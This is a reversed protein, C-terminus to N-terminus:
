ACSRQAKSNAEEKDVAEHEAGPKDNSVGTVANEVEVEVRM